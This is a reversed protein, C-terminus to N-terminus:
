RRVEYKTLELSDGYTSNNVEQSNILICENEKLESLGAKELVYNYAKEDLYYPILNYNYSTGLYEFAGMQTITQYGINNKNKEIIELMVDSIKDKPVNVLFNSYYSLADTEIFYDDVLNNEELYSIIKDMSEYSADIQYDDYTPRAENEFFNSIIGNVVLFLLVSVTISSVIASNRTKERKTYKYALNGEQKFIKKIFYPTKENKVKKKNIGKIGSIIDMKKIKKLPLIASISVIIYVIIFIIPILFIPFDMTFTVHIIENSLWRNIYYKVTNQFMKIILFSLIYGCIIGIILGLSAIVVGEKLCIKRIQSKSTGLSSLM